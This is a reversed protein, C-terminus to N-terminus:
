GVAVVALTLNDPAGRTLALQLLEDCAEAPAFRDLCQSLEADDVVETLGDSCILFRDGSDTRGEVVDLELHPVIGVARSIIHRNPHRDAAEAPIDGRGVREQVWTHDTTLRRLDDGRRLYARSDGAWVCAFRGHGLLLAVVTSGITTGMRAASEQIEANAENLAAEIRSIGGALEGALNARAVQECVMRAAWDGADHGGMGDAVLWLGADSRVLLADENHARVLGRHTLGASTLKM